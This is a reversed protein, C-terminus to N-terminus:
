HFSRRSARRDSEHVRAHFGKYYHDARDRLLQKRERRELYTTSLQTILDRIIKM